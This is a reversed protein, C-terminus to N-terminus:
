RRPSAPSKTKRRKLFEREEKELATKPTFSGRYGIYGLVDPEYLIRRDLDWVIKETEDMNVVIYERPDEIINGKEDKKEPPRFM